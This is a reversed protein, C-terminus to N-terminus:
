RLLAADDLNASLYSIEGAFSSPPAGMFLKSDLHVM